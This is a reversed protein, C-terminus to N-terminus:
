HKPWGLQFVHIDLYHSLQFTVSVGYYLFIALMVLSAFPLVYVENVLGLIANVSGLVTLIIVNNWPSVVEHTIRAIMLRDCLYSFMLGHFHVLHMFQTEPVNIRSSLVWLVMFFLHILLPMLPPLTKEFPFKKEKSWKWLSHANDALTFLLLFPLAYLGIVRLSISGGLFDPLSFLSGLTTAGWWAPGKFYAFIFLVICGIQGETPNCIEGLILNNTHYEEWHSAYFVSVAACLVFFAQTGSWGIACSVPYAILLMYLSDCGHDFLEGLASSSGTKRAQKGDLNDMVQYFFVSFAFWLFFPPPLECTAGTTGLGCWLISIIHNSLLFIFGIATITNPAITDPIFVMCSNWFDRLFLRVLISLDQGTYKYEDLAKLGKPPISKWVWSPPETHVIQRPKAAM